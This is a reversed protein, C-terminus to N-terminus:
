KLCRDDIKDSKFLVTLKDNVDIKIVAYLEGTKLNFVECHTADYDRYQLRKVTNAVAASHRKSRTVKVVDRGQYYYTAVDREHVM